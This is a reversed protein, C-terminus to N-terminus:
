EGKETTKKIICVVDEDNLVQVRADPEDPDQIRKGAYKAFAVTDGVACWAEGGFDRWATPGIALVVGLDVSEQRRQLDATEPIVFGKISVDYASDVEKLDLLRVVVRHGCPIVGM